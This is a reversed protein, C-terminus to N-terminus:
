VALRSTRTNPPLWLRPKAPLPRRPRSVQVRHDAELTNRWMRRYMIHAQARAPVFDTYSVRIIRGEPGTGKIQSLPIGKELAIKRALPSAFFKPRDGGSAKEPAKQAETGGGSGLKQEGPTQLASTRTGSDGQKSDSKEEKSEEKPEEKSESKAPAEAAEKAM